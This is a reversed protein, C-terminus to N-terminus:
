LQLYHLTFYLQKSLTKEIKIIRYHMKEDFKNKTEQDSKLDYDLCYSELASYKYNIVKKILYNPM